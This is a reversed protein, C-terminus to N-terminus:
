PLIIVVGNELKYNVGNAKLVKMFESLKLNRSVKGRFRETTVTGEFRIETDYWRAAQRMIQHIDADNFQFFGTKWAIVEETHVKKRSLATGDNILAQEGPSLLISQKDHSTSVRVKGDILTIRQGEENPYANVNFSTGLAETIQKGSNVRFPKNQDPAVEFYAEGTVTILRETGNFATPYTVSSAANLWVRSGDPLQFSFQRGRPTTVTNYVTAIPQSGTEPATYALSGNKLVVRANGQNAVLGSSVTDLLVKSGDALTLIAGEKGPDIDQQSQTLAPKTQSDGFFHYAATSLIGLLAAAAAYKLFRRKLPVVDSREDEGIRSMLKQLIGHKVADEPGLEDLPWHKEQDLSEYYHDVMAKEEPTAKGGLYRDIIEKLESKEM